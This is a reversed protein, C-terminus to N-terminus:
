CLHKSQLISIFLSRNHRAKVSTLSFFLWFIDKHKYYVGSNGGSSGSQIILMILNNLMNSHLQFWEADKRRMLSSQKCNLMAGSEAFGGTQARGTRQGDQSSSLASPLYILQHLRQACVHQLASSLDSFLPSTNNVPLGRVQCVFGKFSTCANPLTPGPHQLGM